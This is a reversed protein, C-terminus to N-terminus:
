MLNKAYCCYFTNNGVSIFSFIDTTNSGTSLTPAVGGPFKVDAGLFSITCDTCSVNKKVVLIYAGAAGDSNITIPSISSSFTIQALNGKSLDWVGSTIETIEDVKFRDASVTGAVELKTSPTATGIGVNGNDLDVRMYEIMNDDELASGVKGFSLFANSTSPGFLMTGYEFDTYQLKLGYSIPGNKYVYMGPNLSNALPTYYNRGVHLFSSETNNGFIASGNVDLKEVPNSNNIGVNGDARYINEGSEIWFTNSEVTNSQLHEWTALGAADSMLVKGIGPSGGTIKVQGAVELKAGPTETGIGVNGNSELIKLRPTTYTKLVLDSGQSASFIGGRVFIQRNFVFRSRDTYIHAAWVNAPGLKIYGYDTNFQNWTVSASGKVSANINANHTDNEEDEPEDYGLTHWSENDIGKELDISMSKDQLKLLRDVPDWVVISNDIKGKPLVDLQLSGKIKVSNGEIVVAENQETDRVIFKGGAAVENIINDQASVSSLTFVGIGIFIKILNNMILEGALLNIM